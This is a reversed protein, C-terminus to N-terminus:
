GDQTLVVSFPQIIDREGLKPVRRLDPRCRTVTWHVQPLFRPLFRLDHRFDAQGPFWVLARRAKQGPSNSLQFGLPALFPRSCFPCPLLCMSVGHRQESIHPHRKNPPAGWLTTSRKITRAFWGFPAVRWFPCVGRGVEHKGSESMRVGYSCECVGLNGAFSGCRAAKGQCRLPSEDQLWEM